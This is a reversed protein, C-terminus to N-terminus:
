RATRCASGRGLACCCGRSRAARRCRRRARPAPHARPSSRRPARLPPGTPPPATRLCCSSPRAVALPHVIPTFPPPERAFHPTPPALTRTRSRTHAHTRPVPRHPAGRRPETRRRRAAALQWQITCRGGRKRRAATCRLGHARAFRGQVPAFLWQCPLSECGRQPQGRAARGGRCPWGASRCLPRSAGGAGVPRPARAGRVRRGLRM